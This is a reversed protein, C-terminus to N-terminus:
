LALSSFFGLGIIIGNVNWNSILENIQKGNQSISASVTSFSSFFTFKAFIRLKRLFFFFTIRVASAYANNLYKCDVRLQLCNRFNFKKRFFFLKFYFNNKKKIFIKFNNISQFDIIKKLFNNENEM